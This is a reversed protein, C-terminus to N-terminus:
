YSLTLFITAMIEAPLGYEPTHHYSSFRDIFLQTVWTMPSLDDAPVCVGRSYEFRINNQAQFLFFYNNSRCNDNNSSSELASTTIITL